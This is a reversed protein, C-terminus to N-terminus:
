NTPISRAIRLVDIAYQRPQAPLSEWTGGGALFERLSDPGWNYAVLMWQLEPYGLDALLTRLYDLYAAGVLVNSYSDFPDSVNVKPAFERWTAPYIQMLGLDGRSSLALSDFGSEIYAQAALMRWDLDYILSVGKFMEAYTMNRAQVARAPQAPPLLEGGRGLPQADASEPQWISPIGAPTPEGPATVQNPQVIPVVPMAPERTAEAGAASRSSTVEPFGPAPQAVLPSTARVPAPEDLQIVFAVVPSQEVRTVPPSVAANRLALLIALGAVGAFILGIMLVGALAALHWFGLLSRSTLQGQSSRQMRSGGTRATEAVMKFPIVHGRLGVLPRVAPQLEVYVPHSQGPELHLEIEDPHPAAGATAHLVFHCEHLKASGFLRYVASHNSLNTLKVATAAKPKFWSCQLEAPRLPSIQFDTFPRIVLSAGTRSYRGPYNDARVVVALAHEGSRSASTRPPSLTLPITIREGSGLTAQVPLEDCWREDIWGELAITFLSPKNGNNHLTIDLTVSEGPVVTVRRVPLGVLIVDDYHEQIATPPGAPPEDDFPEQPVDVYTAEGEIEIVQWNQLVPPLAAMEGDAPPQDDEPTDASNEISVSTGLVTSELNM